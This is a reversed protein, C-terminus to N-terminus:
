KALKSFAHVKGSDYTQGWSWLPTPEHTKVVLVSGSRLGEAEFYQARLEEDCYVSGTCLETVDELLARLWTNGSGPSSALFVPLRSSNTALLRCRSQSLDGRTGVKFGRERMHELTTRVCSEYSDRDIPRMSNRCPLENCTPPSPPQRLRTGILTRPSTAEVHANRASQESAVHTTHFEEDGSSTHQTVIGALAITHQVPPVRERWNEITTRILLHLLFLFYAMLLTWMCRRLTALRILWRMVLDHIDGGGVGPTTVHTCLM